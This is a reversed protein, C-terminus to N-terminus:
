STTIVINDPESTSNTYQLTVNIESINSPVTWRFADPRSLINNEYVVSNDMTATAAVTGTDDSGAKTFFLLEDGEYVTLSTPEYYRMRVNDYLSVVDVCCDNEDGTGTISLTVCKPYKATISVNGTVSPISVKGTSSSYATSTIDIGGMKITATGHSSSYGSKPTPTEQLSNGEKITTASSNSVAGTLTREITYTALVKLKYFMRSMQIM